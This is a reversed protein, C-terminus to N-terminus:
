MTSIFLAIDAPILKGIGNSEMIALTRVFSIPQILHRSIIANLANLTRQPQITLAIPAGMHAPIAFKLPQITSLALLVTLANEQAGTIYRILM